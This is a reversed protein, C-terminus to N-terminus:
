QLSKELAAQMADIERVVLDTAANPVMHGVGPLVILKAGPVVAAFQRSHIQTSVIDDADGAILTVPVSIRDYRPAQEAVAAKLTVLDWANAQFNRPRLVLPTGTAGIYDPPPTQPAFAAGVGPKLLLMGVPLTLTHALLPGIIPTTILVNYNGVGGPWPYLVPALMVLGATRKPHNRPMLAGLAGALSHVVIIARPVNIQQLAADIMAAQEAPSSRELTDRRSWGHGPRDILIVRRTKALADGLPVRLTGLTSTAGHVLVIPLGPADRPGLNERPGIDLINLTGGPVQVSVGQPPYSREVLATGILTGLGLAAFTLVIGIAILTVIRIM